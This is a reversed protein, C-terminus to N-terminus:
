RAAECATTRSRDAGDRTSGIFSSTAAPGICGDRLRALDLCARQRTSRAESDLRRPVHSFPHPELELRPSVEVLGDYPELRKSLGDSTWAHIADCTV